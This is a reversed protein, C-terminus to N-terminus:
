VSGGERISVNLYQGNGLHISMEGSKKQVYLSENGCETLLNALEGFYKQLNSVPVQGSKTKKNM